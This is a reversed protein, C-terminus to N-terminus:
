LSPRCIDISEGGGEAGADPVSSAQTARCRILVAHQAVVLAVSVGVAEAVPVLQAAPHDLGPPGSLVVAVFSGLSDFYGSRFKRSLSSVAGAKLAWM